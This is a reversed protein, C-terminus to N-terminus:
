VVHIAILTLTGTSFCTVTFSFIECPTCYNFDTVVLWCSRLTLLQDVSTNVCFLTKFIWQGPESERVPATDHGLYCPPPILALLGVEFVLVDISSYFVGQHLILGLSTAVGHNTKHLETGELPAFAAFRFVSRTFGACLGISVHSGLRASPWLRSLLQPNTRIGIMAACVWVRQSHTTWCKLSIQNVIARSVGMFTGKRSLLEHVAGVPIWMVSLFTVIWTIGEAWGPFRYSKGYHLPAHQVMSTVLIVQRWLM